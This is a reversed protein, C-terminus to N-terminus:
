SDLQYHVLACAKLTNSQFVAFEAERHALKELDHHIPRWVESKAYRLAESESRSRINLSLAAQRVPAIRVCLPSLRM